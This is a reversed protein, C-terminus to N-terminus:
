TGPWSVATLPLADVTAFYLVRNTMTLDVAMVPPPDNTSWATVTVCAGSGVHFATDPLSRDPLWTFTHEGDTRIVQHIEGYTRSIHADNVPVGNTTVGATVVAPAGALEYRVKVERTAADQEMRVNSIQPAALASAAALLITTVTWPKEYNM